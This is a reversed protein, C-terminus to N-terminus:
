MKALRFLKMLDMLDNATFAVTHEDKRVAGPIWSAKQAGAEDAVSPIQGDQAKASPEDSM